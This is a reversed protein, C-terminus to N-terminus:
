NKSAPEVAAGGPASAEAETPEVGVEKFASLLTDV